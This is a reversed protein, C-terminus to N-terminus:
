PPFLSGKKKKKEKKKKYEMKRDAKMYNAITLNACTSTLQVDIIQCRYSNM